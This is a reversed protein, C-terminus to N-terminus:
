PVPREAIFVAGERSIRLSCAHTNSPAIFLDAGGAIRCSDTWFIVAVASEDKGIKIPDLDYGSITATAAPNQILKFVTGECKITAVALVTMFLGAVLQTHMGCLLVYTRALVAFSYVACLVQCLRLVSRSIGSRRDRTQVPVLLITGRNFM